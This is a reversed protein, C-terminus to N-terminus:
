KARKRRDRSIQKMREFFEARAIEGLFPSLRARESGHHRPAASRESSVSPVMESASSVTETSM